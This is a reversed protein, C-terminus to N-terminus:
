WCSTTAPPTRRWTAARCRTDAPVLRESRPGVVDHVDPVRRKPGKLQGARTLWAPNMTVQEHRPNHETCRRPGAFKVRNDRRVAAGSRADVLVDYVGTSSVPALVRWALRYGAEGRYLTLSARGGDSFQTAQEAGGESM